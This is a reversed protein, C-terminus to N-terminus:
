PRSLKPRYPILVYIEKFIYLMLMKKEKKRTKIELLYYYYSKKNSKAYYYNQHKPEFIRICM